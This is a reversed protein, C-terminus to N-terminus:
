EDTTGGIILRPKMDKAKEVLEAIVSVYKDNLEYRQGIIRALFKEGQQINSFSANMYHHDRAIFIVVPSPQEDAAEARIGAKTINKAVCQILMGEVPCCVLCEFVIEFKCYLGSVIGSSYTIIKISGPKVFGEVICKNEYLSSVNKEIVEQINKGVHKIPIRVNKTILARSYINFTKVEKRRSRIIPKSSPLQVNQSMEM